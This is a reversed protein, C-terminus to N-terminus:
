HRGRRELRAIPTSFAPPSFRGFVKELAGAVALVERDHYPRGVIQVGVPLGERSLGCPVVAVPFGLISIARCCSGLETWPIERGEVTFSQQRPDSAPVSAVPLLLIRHEKMFGLVQARIADRAAAAKRYEVVSVPPELLGQLHGGLEDERGVALDAVEPMGEATRLAVFAAAAQELGPPRGHNVPVGLDQLVAAASRVVAVLDARVPHTGEDEFWAATVGELNELPEGLPVPVTSPDLDDPGALIGLLVGLDEVSRALWGISGLRHLASMSNPAPLSGDTPPVYPLLGTEPVLGV